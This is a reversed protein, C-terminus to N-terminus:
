EEEPAGQLWYWIPAMAIAMQILFNTVLVHVWLLSPKGTM